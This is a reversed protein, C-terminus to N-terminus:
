FKLRENGRQGGRGRARGSQTKTIPRGRGNNV